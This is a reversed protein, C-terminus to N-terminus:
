SLRPIDASHVSTASITEGSPKIAEGYIEVLGWVILALILGGILIVLVHRGWHGQRAKDTPVVKTM